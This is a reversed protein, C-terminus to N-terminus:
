ATHTVPRSRLKASIPAGVGLDCPVCSQHGRGIHHERCAVVHALTHEVEVARRRDGKEAHLWSIVPPVVEASQQRHVDDLLLDRAM